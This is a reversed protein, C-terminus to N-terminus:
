ADPATVGVAEAAARVDRWVESKMMVGAKTAQRKREASGAGPLLVESFGPRLASSRMRADVEAVSRAYTESDSIADVAIAAVFVGSSAPPYEGALAGCLLEVAVALAYGKHGGLPALTGAPPLARNPDTTPNGDADLAWTDPIPQGTAAAILVRGRAAQTTSIDVVVPDAGRYPFGIALPNTSLRAERGGWPAMTASGPNGSLAIVGIMGEAAAREVYYGLRGVHGVNAIVGVCAGSSAAREICMGMAKTAVVAGWGDHGDLSLAAPSDRRVEIQAPSRLQGKQAWGLYSPLRMLGQADYGREDADVLVEAELAAEDEDVGAAVLARTAFARLVDGRFPGALGTPASM